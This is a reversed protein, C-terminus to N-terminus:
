SRHRSVRHRFANKFHVFAYITSTLHFFSYTTIQITIAFSDVIYTGAILAKAGAANISHLLPQGVLNSNILAPVLGVKTCGLWLGVFEIRNEMFLAVCQGPKYGARLFFNAVRNSYDELDKFTWVQDEFIM